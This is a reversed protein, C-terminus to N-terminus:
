PGFSGYTPKGAPRYVCAMVGSSTTETSVLELAAPVTGDAFLRKGTGLLLPYVLLRYEDVLGHRILTQALDLSGIVQLEGLDQERLRAVAAPVDAGLLTSNQWALSRATRSAVFKPLGNLAKAIDAHEHDAPM